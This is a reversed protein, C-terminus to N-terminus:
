WSFPISTKRWDPEWINTQITEILLIKETKRYWGDRNKEIRTNYIEEKLHCACQTIVFKKKKLAIASSGQQWKPIIHFIGIENSTSIKAFNARLIARSKLSSRKKKEGIKCANPGVNKRLRGLNTLWNYSGYSKLAAVAAFVDRLFRTRPWETKMAIIRLGLGFTSSKM